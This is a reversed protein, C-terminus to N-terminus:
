CALMARSASQAASSGHMPELGQKIVQRAM